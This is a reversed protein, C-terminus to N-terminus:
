PSTAPLVVIRSRMFEPITYIGENALDLTSGRSKGPLLLPRISPIHHALAKPGRGVVDNRTVIGSSGTRSLKQLIEVHRPRLRAEILLGAHTVRAINGRVEIRPALANRLAEVQRRIWEVVLLVQAMVVRHRTRMQIAFEPWRKRMTRLDSGVEGVFAAAYYELSRLGCVSSICSPPEGLVDRPFTIDGNTSIEFLHFLSQEPYGPRRNTCNVFPSVQSAWQIAAAIVKRGEALSMPATGFMPFPQLVARYLGENVDIVPRICEPMFKDFDSTTM